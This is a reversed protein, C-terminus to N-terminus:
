YHGHIKLVLVSNSFSVITNITRHDTFYYKTGFERINPIVSASFCSSSSCRCNCLAIRKVCVCFVYKAVAFYTKKKCRKSYYIFVIINDCQAWVKQLAQEFQISLIELYSGGRWRTKKRRTVQANKHCVESNRKWFVTREKKSLAPM